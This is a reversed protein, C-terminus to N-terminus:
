GIARLRADGLVLLVLSLQVAVGLVVVVLFLGLVLFLVADLLVRLGQDRVGVDFIGWIGVVVGDCDDIGRRACGCRGRCRM